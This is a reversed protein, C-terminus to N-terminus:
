GDCYPRENSALEQIYIRYEEPPNALLAEVEARFAHSFWYKREKWWASGGPANLVSPIANRYGVLLDEDLDGNRFDAFAQEIAQLWVLLLLDFRYREVPPMSGIDGFGTVAITAIEDDRLFAHLAKAHDSATYRANTRRTEKTNKRIELGVFVLSVVVGISGVFEGINGLDNLDM